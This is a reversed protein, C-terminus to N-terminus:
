FLFRKTRDFEAPEFMFWLLNHYFVISLFRVREYISLITLLM